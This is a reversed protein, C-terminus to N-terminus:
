ESVTPAAPGSSVTITVVGQRTISSGPRPSQAFVTGAPSSGSQGSNVQVHLGAAKLASEAQAQSQGLVNLVTIRAVVAPAQTTPNSIVGGSTGFLGALGVGLAVLAVAHRRVPSQVAM